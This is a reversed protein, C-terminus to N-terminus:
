KCWYPIENDALSGDDAENYANKKLSAKAHFYCIATTTNAYQIAAPCGICKNVCQQQAKASRTLCLRSAEADTFDKLYKFM